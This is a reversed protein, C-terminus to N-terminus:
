DSGGALRHYAVVGELLTVVSDFQGDLDTNELFREKDLM